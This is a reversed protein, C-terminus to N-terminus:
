ECLRQYAKQVTQAMLIRRQSLFDMYEMNEFNDPLAHNECAKRYGEEGLKHRYYSVYDIPPKDSIEINTSFDLYTYNAIQNRDRDTDFGITTLYNKPFIHHKDIANKTGSSGLVFYKSVPTNSFLMPMSLIIQAAVYGYWVPSIAAASNLENPLTLRFYDDTFRTEIVRDIYSIFDATSHVDRLDAFQKEVATETSGTYFYTISSMFFWKSICKKLQAADLKYDYKAILYLVYSFVVANSSAILKSSIYGAEGVINIFGHWNNLNMVKDLADKFIRLNESREEASFKGTELNKGRLLMYAYRLRARRFGVGVAMRILHSPEVALLTNYSTNNAPIRSEASFANIRDGTENEYVSILTQIFNNETLKQGGSNVRVFIDAVDEEDANYSIELTPLSYDLLNLLANINDEIKDEETDTLPPVEKKLRSENAEKIYRRRLSSISNDEKALFIDSIRSIWDPDKEYAQSWVAFECTLPNYSIKIEREVFNKDKVKVAFMAAVLATLRQQGDIVLEKPEDYTKDNNGITSKKSEYDAPSEWLMIYGIPYGKLMSDFLERVKNDKWVFPRQLDPLGIRGNRVDKVLDGVKSPINKFLEKEM